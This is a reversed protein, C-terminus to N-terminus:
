LKPFPLIFSTRKKYDTFEQKFHKEMLKEEFRARLILLPIQIIALPLLVYSLTAFAGGLDIVIQSLYQPHRIM